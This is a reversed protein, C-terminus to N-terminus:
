LSSCPGLSLKLLQKSPKKPYRLLYHLTQITKPQIIINTIHQHQQHMKWIFFYIGGTEYVLIGWVGPPFPKADNKWCRHLGLM